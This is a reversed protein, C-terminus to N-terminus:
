LIDHYDTTIITWIINTSHRCKYMYNVHVINHLMTYCPITHVLLVVDILLGTFTQMDFLHPINLHNIIKFNICCEIKHNIMKPSIVSMWIWVSQFICDYISKLNWHYDRLSNCYM